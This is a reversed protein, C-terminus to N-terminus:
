RQTVVLLDGSNVVIAINGGKDTRIVRAAITALATLVSAAPDHQSNARGVSIVAVRPRVADLFGADQAAGHHPVVLVDAALSDARSELETEDAADLDGAVLVRLGAVDVSVVRASAVEAVVGWRVNGVVHVIGPKAAAVAVHSASAWGRIRVDADAALQSGPDIESVTRGHLAGPVGGVAASTGGTLVIWALTRIGLEDLCDDVASPSPGADVLVGSQPGTRAVIAEGQGVDCVALVWGPPPWPQTALRGRVALASAVLTVVVVLRLVVGRWRASWLLLGVASGLVVLTIAGSAGDRWPVAAGPLRSFTRAVFVLWWCPIGALRAIFQAAGM